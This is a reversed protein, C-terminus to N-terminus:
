HLLLTILWRFSHTHTKKKLNTPPLHLGYQTWAASRGTIPRNYSDRTIKLISFNTSHYTTPLPFRLVRLFGTGTSNQGCCIWCSRVHARVRAASPFGSILGQAIARRQHHIHYLMIVSTFAPSPIQLSNQTELVVKVCRNTLLRHKLEFLSASFRTKDYIATQM